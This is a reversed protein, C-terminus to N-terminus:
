MTMRGYKLGRFHTKADCNMYIMPYTMKKLKCLETFKAELFLLLLKSYAGIVSLITIKYNITHSFM